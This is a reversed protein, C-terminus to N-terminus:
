RHFVSTMDRIEISEVRVVAGNSGEIDLGFHGYVPATGWVMDVGTRDGSGVIARVTYIRGYEDLSVAPGQNTVSAGLWAGNVDGPFATIRVTPFPGSILKVRATVELYCGPLIPTEGTYRLRQPENAKQIEICPGFDQDSAVLTGNPDNSYRVTSPTGDGSSWVDLGDIFAPPMFDLGETIAKNM